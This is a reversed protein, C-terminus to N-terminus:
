TGSLILTYIILAAMGAAMLAYYRYLLGSQVRSLGAAGLMLAANLARVAGDVFRRDTLLSLGALARTGFVSARATARDLAHLDFVALQRASWLAGFGTRTLPETREIVRLRDALLRVGDAIRAAPEVQDLRDLAHGADLVIGGIRDLARVSGFWALAARSGGAGLLPRLPVLARRRHLVWVAVIGALTAATALAASVLHFGPLEGLGLAASWAPELPPLVLAALLLVALALVVEPLTMLLAPEHPDAGDDQGPRRKGAFAGVLARAAYAATLLTVVLLVVFGALSAQEVRVLLAEKTVFGSMPPLSALSLTGILFLGAQIPMRRILGGMEDLRKMGQHLLVGAGLFLLAKFAAHAVLHSAVAAGGLAGVGAAMYGYQSVTSAALLQKLDEQHLAVLAGALATLIGLWLVLTAAWPMAELLPLIKLLLVVGAL